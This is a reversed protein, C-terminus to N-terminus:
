EKTIGLANIFVNLDEEGITGHGQGDTRLITRLGKVVEARDEERITHIFSLIDDRLKVNITQNMHPFKEVFKDVIQEKTSIM